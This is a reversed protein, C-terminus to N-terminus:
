GLHQHYQSLSDIQLIWLRKDVLHAKPACLRSRLDLAFDNCFNKLYRIVVLASTWISPFIPFDSSPAVIHLTMCTRLVSKGTAAVFRQGIKEM